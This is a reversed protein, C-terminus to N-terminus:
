TDVGTIALKACLINLKADESVGASQITYFLTGSGEIIEVILFKPTNISMM